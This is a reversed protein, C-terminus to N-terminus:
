SQGPRGEVIESSTASYRYLKKYIPGRRTLTSSYLYLQLPLKIPRVGEWEELLQRLLPENRVTKIRCLTIHPRFPLPPPASPNLKRWREEFLSNLEELQPHFATLALIKEGLLFPRGVELQGIPKFPLPFQWEEPKGEGIFKITLHLNFGEVWKGVVVKEFRQKLPAYIPLQVPVAVFLRM